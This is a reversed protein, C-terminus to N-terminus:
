LGYGNTRHCNRWLHVARVVNPFLTPHTMAVEPYHGDRDMAVVEVMVVVEVMGEVVEEPRDDPDTTIMVVEQDMVVVEVMGEQAEPHDDQDIMIVVAGMVGPDAMKSVLVVLVAWLFRKTMAVTPDMVMVEKTSTLTMAIVLLLLVTITEQIAGM